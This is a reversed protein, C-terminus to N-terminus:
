EQLLEVSSANGTVFTYEDAEERARARTEFRGLETGNHNRAVWPEGARYQEVEHTTADGTLKHPFSRMAQYYAPWEGSALVIVKYDPYKETKVTVRYKTLKKM